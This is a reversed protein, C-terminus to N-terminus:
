SLGTMRRVGRHLRPICPIDGELTPNRRTGRRTPVENGGRDDRDRDKTPQLPDSCIMFNSHVPSLKNAVQHRTRGSSPDPTSKSIVQTNGRDGGRRLDEHGPDIRRVSKCVPCGREIIADAFEERWQTITEKWLIVITGVM